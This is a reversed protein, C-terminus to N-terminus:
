TSKEIKQKLQMYVDKLHNNEKRSPSTDSCAMKFCQALLSILQPNGKLLNTFLEHKVILKIRDESKFSAKVLKRLEKRDMHEQTNDAGIFDM